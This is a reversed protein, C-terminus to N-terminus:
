KLLTKNIETLTTLIAMGAKNNQQIQIIHRMYLDNKIEELLDILNNETSSINSSCHTNQFNKIMVPWVTNTLKELCSKSKRLRDETGRVTSPKEKKNRKMKKKKTAIQVLPAIILKANLCNM